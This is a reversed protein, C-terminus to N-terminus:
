SLFKKMLDYNKYKEIQKETFEIKKILLNFLDDENHSMVIYIIDDTVVYYKNLLLYKTIMISNYNIIIVSYKNIFYNMEKITRNTINDIIKKDFDYDIGYKLIDYIKHRSETFDLIPRTEPLESSIKLLQNIDDNSLKQTYKLVLSLIDGDYNEICHYLIDVDVYENQKTYYKDLFDKINDIYNNPRNYFNNKLINKLKKTRTENKM